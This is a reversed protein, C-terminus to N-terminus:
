RDRRRRPVHNPFPEAPLPLLKDREDDFADCVTRSPDEARKREVSRTTMWEHTPQYKKEILIAQEGWTAQAVFECRM